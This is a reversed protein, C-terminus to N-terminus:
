FTHPLWLKERLTATSCFQPSVDWGWRILHSELIEADYLAYLCLRCQLLITTVLWLCHHAVEQRSWIAFSSLVILSVLTCTILTGWVAYTIFGSTVPYMDCGWSMMALRQFVSFCVLERHRILPFKAVTHPWKSCSGSACNEM